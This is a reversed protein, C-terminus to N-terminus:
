WRFGVVLICSKHPGSQDVIRKWMENIQYIQITTLKNYIPMYIINSEMWLKVWLYRLSAWILVLCLSNCHKMRKRRGGRRRGRSWCIVLVAGKIAVGVSVCVCDIERGVKSGVGMEPYTYRWDFFLFYKFGSSKYKNIKNTLHLFIMFIKTLLLRVVVRRIRFFHLAMFWTRRFYRGAPFRAPIAGLLPLFADLPVAVLPVEPIEM